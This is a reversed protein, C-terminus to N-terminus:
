SGLSIFSLREIRRVLSRTIGSIHINSLAGTHGGFLPHTESLFFLVFLHRAWICCYVFGSEVLMALVKEVRIAASRRSLYNCLV